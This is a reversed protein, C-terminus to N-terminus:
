AAGSAGAKFTLRCGLRGPLKLLALRWRGSDPLVVSRM